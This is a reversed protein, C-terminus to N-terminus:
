EVPLTLEGETPLNLHDRLRSLIKAEKPKTKKNDKHRPPESTVPGAAARQQGHGGPPGVPRARLLLPAPRRTGQESPRQGQGRSLVRELGTPQLALPRDDRRLPNGSGRAPRVRRQAQAQGTRRRREGHRPDETGPRPRGPRFSRRVTATTR